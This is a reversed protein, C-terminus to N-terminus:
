DNLHIEDVCIPDNGEEIVAVYADPTKFSKAMEIAEEKDYSGFGWDNDDADKMAAYWFKGEMKDEQLEELYENIQNALKECADMFDPNSKTEAEEYFREPSEDDAWESDDFRATFTAADDKSHVLEGSEDVHAYYLGEEFMMNQSNIIYDAIDSETYKKM